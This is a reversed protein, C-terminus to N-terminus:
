VVCILSKKEAERLHVLLVRVQVAQEVAEFPTIFHCVCLARGQKKGFYFTVEKEM